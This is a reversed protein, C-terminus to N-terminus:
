VIWGSVLCPNVELYEAFDIIEFFNYADNICGLESVLRKSIAAAQDNRMKQKNSTM